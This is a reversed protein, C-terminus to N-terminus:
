KLRSNYLTNIAQYARQSSLYDKYSFINNTVLHRETGYFLDPQSFAYDIQKFLDEFDSIIPGCRYSSPLSSDFWIDDVDPEIFIVPKDLFLFEPIIGSVDSILIDAAVLLEFPDSFSFPDSSLWHAGYLNCLLFAEESM